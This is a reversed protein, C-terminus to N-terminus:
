SGLNKLKVLLQKMYSEWSYSKVEKHAQICLVKYSEFSESFIATIAEEIKKSNNDCYEGFALETGFTERFSRYNSTIVPTYNYMVDLAASFAAWHPTTNIFITASSVIRYYLENDDKNSKNLYGRFHVGSLNLKSISGKIQHESVGIVDLELKPYKEKLNSVAQILPILGPLYKKSGIFVIKKGQFKRKLNKLNLTVNESNIVNGLYFINKNIYKKQMYRAVDPFLVFVGNASNIIKYQKNIEQREFIDPNRHEFYKILYEYTWDCFLFVPKSTYKKPHYSFSLSIFADTKPFRKISKKMKYNVFQQFFPTREFTYTSQHFFIRIFKLLIRNWLGRIVRNPEVNVRNVKINNKELTRTFYYPVNSWTELSNADGYTYVTIEKFM